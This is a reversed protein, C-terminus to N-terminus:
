ERPPEASGQNYITKGIQFIYIQTPFFNKGQLAVRSAFCKRRELVDDVHVGDLLRSIQLVASRARGVWSRWSRRLLARRM